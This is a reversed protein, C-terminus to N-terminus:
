HEKSMTWPNVDTNWMEIKIKLSGDSQKQWITLYKGNDAVPQPVGPLTLSIGYKGIEYVLDSCSWIDLITFNMSHIEFGAKRMEEDNKKLAEKGKIMEGYNPMSIIDDTYFSFITEVDGAITAKVLKDGMGEIQKKLKGLDDQAVLQSCLLTVIFLILSLYSIINRM